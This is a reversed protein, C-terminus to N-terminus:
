GSTTYLVEAALTLATTDSTALAALLPLGTKTPVLETSSLSASASLIAALNPGSAAALCNLTSFAFGSFTSLSPSTTACAPLSPATVTAVLMAPLPVSMRRPPLEPRIALSRTRSPRTALPTSACPTVGGVGMSSTEPSAAPPAEPSPSPPPSEAATAATDKKGHGKLATAKLAIESAAARTSASQRSSSSPPAAPTTPNSDTNSNSSSTDIAASLAGSLSGVTSAMLFAMLKALASKEAVSAGSFSSTRFNPPKYTTPVSLCSDLRMSLWSRPREPRWPSGPLLRKKRLRSSGMSLVNPASLIVFTSSLKRTESSTGSSAFITVSAM